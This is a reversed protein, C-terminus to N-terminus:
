PALRYYRQGGTASPDKFQYVPSAPATLPTWDSLNTSVQVKLNLGSINTLSFQFFGNCLAAPNTIYVNTTANWYNAFAQNLEALDVIHPLVTLSGNEYTITYNNTLVAPLANTALIDYTGAAAGASAGTSSLSVSTVTANNFLPSPSTTFETGAFTLVQGFTKSTSAPIITLSARNVQQGGILNGSSAGYNANGGFDATVSYPSAGSYQLTSITLDAAGSTTTSTGFTIGNTKFTVISGNGPDPNVVAHFNLSTGYSCSSSGSTRTVTTTTPNQVVANANYIFAFVNTQTLKQKNIDTAYFRLVNTGPVIQAPNLSLDWATTNLITRSSWGNTTDLKYNVYYLVVNTSISHCKVVLNSFSITNIDKHNAVTINLGNTSNNKEELRTVYPATGKLLGVCMSSYLSSAGGFGVTVSFYKSTNTPDIMLFQPVPYTGTGLWQQYANCHENPGCPWYVFSERLFPLVTSSPLGSSALALCASCGNTDSVVLLITKNPYVNNTALFIAGQLSNTDGLVAAHGSPLAFALGLCLALLSNKIMKM